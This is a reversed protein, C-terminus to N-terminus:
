RYSAPLRRFSRVDRRSSPKTGVPRPGDQPLTAGLARSIRRAGDLVVPLFRRKLERMSVRAAHASINLAADIQNNHNYLPAAVTRVGVESEQDSFAWGRQRVEALVRRLDTPRTITQPTLPRLPATAFYADLAEPSLHALLVKGMSTAHAPLRSGVVLNISMIRKAQVRAVYVVEHGDLVAASCSEHLSAAIEEMVPQAVDAVDITALYTFGLDLIRPTLAFRANQQVVYGLRLLTLLYRRAVARTLGTRQAVEAITQHRHDTGFAQVIAFGRELGQVFEREDVRANESSVIRPRNNNTERM